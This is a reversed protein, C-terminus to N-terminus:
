GGDVGGSKRPARPARFYPHQLAEDATIRKAPDPELMRELLDM